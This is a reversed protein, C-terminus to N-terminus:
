NLKVHVLSSGLIHPLPLLPLFLCNAGWQICSGTSDPSWGWSKTGTGSIRVWRWSILLGTILWVFLLLCVFNNEQGLPSTDREKKMFFDGGWVEAIPHPVMTGFTPTPPLPSSYSNMSPTGIFKAYGQNNNMQYFGQLVNQKHSAFSTFWHLSLNM